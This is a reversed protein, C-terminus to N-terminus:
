EGLSEIKSSFRGRGIKRGDGLGTTRGAQEAISRLDDFDLVDTELVWESILQWSPFQPRMRMVRKQGVGVSTLWRHAPLEWLKAVARPGDYLIPFAIQETMILARGVTTGLRRVKAAEILCQRVAAAEVYPGLEASWYIGGFFELRQIERRDDETQNRSPKDTIRAIEKTFDNDKDVLQANHLVLPTLGDFTLRVRVIREGGDLFSGAM